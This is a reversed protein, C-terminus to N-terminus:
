RHTQPHDRGDNDASSHTATGQTMYAPAPIDFGELRLYDVVAPSHQKSLATRSRVHSAALRVMALHAARLQPIWELLQGDHLYVPKADRESPFTIREIAIGSTHMRERLERDMTPRRVMMMLRDAEVRSLTLAEIGGVNLRLYTRSGAFLTVGWSNPNIEHAARISAALQELALARLGPDPFLFEFVQRAVGPEARARALAEPTKPREISRGKSGDIGFRIQSTQSSWLDSVRGTGEPATTGLSAVRPPALDIQVERLLESLRDGPMVRLLYSILDEQRPQGFAMRYLALARQLAAYRPVERSLPLAPVYREIKAGGDIQYL